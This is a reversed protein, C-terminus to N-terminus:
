VVGGDGLTDFGKGGSSLLSRLGRYGRTIASRERRNREQEQALQADVDPDDQPPDPDEIDPKLADGIAKIPATVIGGLGGGGCM